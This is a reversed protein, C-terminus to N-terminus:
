DDGGGEETAGFAQMMNAVVDDDAPSFGYLHTNNPGVEIVLGPYRGLENQKELKVTARIVAKQSILLHDSMEKRTLTQGRPIRQLLEWIKSESTRPGGDFDLDGTARKYGKGPVLELTWDGLALIGMREKGIRFTAGQGTTRQLLFIQGAWWSWLAAGYLDHMSPVGGGMAPPKRPHMPILWSVLPHRSRIGDISAILRGVVEAENVNSGLFLKYVPDICVLDPKREEILEEIVEFMLGWGDLGAGERWDCWAIRKAHEGLDMEAVLESVPSGEEYGTPYFSKMVARQAVGVGQELDVVLATHGEGKAGLFESGMVTAKVMELAMTSKGQGGHGGLITAAGKRLFNGLLPEAEETEQRLMQDLTFVRSRLAEKRLADKDEGPAGPPFPM